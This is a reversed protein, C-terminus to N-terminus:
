ICLKRAAETRRGAMDVVAGSRLLCCGRRLMPFRMGEVEVGALGLMAARCMAAIANRVILLCGGGVSSAVRHPAGFSHLRSAGGSAAVIPVAGAAFRARSPACAMTFSNTLAPLTQLFVFKDTAYRVLDPRRKFCSTM